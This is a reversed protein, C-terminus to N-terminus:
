VGDHLCEGDGHDIGKEGEGRSERRRVFGGAVCADGGGVLVSAVDGGGAGIDPAVVVGICGTRIIAGAAMPVTHRKRRVSGEDM